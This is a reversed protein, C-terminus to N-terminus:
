GGPGQLPGPPQLDKCADVAKSFVSRRVSAGYATGQANPDPFDSVGNERMCETFKVAQGPDAAKTDTAKTDAAKTDAANGGEVSDNSCGAGILALMALAALPGLRRSVNGEKRM